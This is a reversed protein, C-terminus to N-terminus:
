PAETWATATVTSETPPEYDPPFENYHYGVTRYDDSPPDYYKGSASVGYTNTDSDFSSAVIGEGERELTSLVSMYPVRYTPYPLWVRQGSDYEVPDGPSINSECGVVIVLDPSAEGERVDDGPWKVGTRNMHDLVQEPIHQLAEPFVAAILRGYSIDTGYLRNLVELQNENAVARFPGELNVPGSQAGAVCTTLLVMCLVVVTLRLKV